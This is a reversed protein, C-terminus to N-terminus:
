KYRNLENVQRIVNYMAFAVGILAFLTRNPHQINGYHDDLWSGFWAFFFIIAGMQVPMTILVIWKNRKQKDEQNEM